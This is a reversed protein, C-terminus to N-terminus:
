KLLNLLYINKLNLYKIKSLFRKNLIKIKDARKKEFFFRKKKLKRRLKKIKLNMFFQKKKLNFIIEKLYFYKFFFSKKFILSYSYKRFINMKLINLKNQKNKLM